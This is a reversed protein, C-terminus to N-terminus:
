TTPDRLLVLGLWVGAKVKGARLKGMGRKGLGGGRKCQETLQEEGLGGRFKTKGM